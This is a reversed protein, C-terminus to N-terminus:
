ELEDKKDWLGFGDINYDQYDLLDKSDQNFLVTVCRM